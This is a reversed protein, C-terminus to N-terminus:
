GERQGQSGGPAGCLQCHYVTAGNVTGVKHWEHECADSRGVCGLLRLLRKAGEHGEMAMVGAVFGRDKKDGMTRGEREGGARAATIAEYDVDLGAAIFAMIMPIRASREAAEEERTVAGADLLLGHRDVLV